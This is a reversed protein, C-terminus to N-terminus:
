GEDDQVEEINAISNAVALIAERSEKVDTVVRKIEPSDYFLPIELVKSISQYRQDLIDLANEVGDEVKLIIRSFRWLYYICGTLILTEVVCLFTLFYIM